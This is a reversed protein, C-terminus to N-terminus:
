PATLEKAGELMRGPNSLHEIIDGALVVEFGADGVTRDLTELEEADCLRVDDRGREHLKSVIEADVDIGIVLRAVDRLRSHLSSPSEFFRLRESATGETMGICGLHLVRRRRCRSLVTTERPVYSTPVADTQGALSM